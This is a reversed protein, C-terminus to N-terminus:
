QSELPSVAEDGGVIDPCHEEKAHGVDGASRYRIRPATVDRNRNPEKTEGADNRCGDTSAL